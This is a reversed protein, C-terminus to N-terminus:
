PRTHPQVFMAATANGRQLPLHHEEDWCRARTGSKTVAREAAIRGLTGLLLLQVVPLDISTGIVFLCRQVFYGRQEPGVSPQWTTAERVIMGVIAAVAVVFLALGTARLGENSVWQRGAMGAPLLVVLRALHASVLAAIPPGCGWPGCVTHDWDTEVHALQLVGWLVGAWAFLAMTLRVMSSM